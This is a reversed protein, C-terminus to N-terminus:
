AALLMEKVRVEIPAPCVIAILLQPKVHVHTFYLGSKTSEAFSVRGDNAIRWRAALQKLRGAAAEWSLRELKLLAEFATWISYFAKQRASPALPALDAAVASLGLRDLTKLADGVPMLREADIGIPADLGIGACYFPGADSLSLHFRGAGNLRWRGSPASHASDPQQYSALIGDIFRGREGQQWAAPLGSKLDLARCHIPRDGEGASSQGEMWWLDARAPARM